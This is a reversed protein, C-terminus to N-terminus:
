TTAYNGRIFRRHLTLTPRRRGDSSVLSTDDKFYGCLIVSDFVAKLYNENNSAWTHTIRETLKM